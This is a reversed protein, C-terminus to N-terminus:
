LLSRESFDVFYLTWFSLTWMEPATSVICRVTWNSRCQLMLPHGTDPVGRHWDGLGETSSQEGRCGTESESVIRSGIEYLSLYNTSMADAMTSICAEM